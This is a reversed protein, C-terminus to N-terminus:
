IQVGPVFRMSPACEAEGPWDAVRCCKIGLPMERREGFLANLQNMKIQAELFTGSCLYHVSLLYDLIQM